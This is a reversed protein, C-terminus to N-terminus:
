KAWANKLSVNRHGNTSNFYNKKKSATPLAPFSEQHSEMHSLAQPIFTDCDPNEIIPEIKPNPNQKSKWQNKSTYDASSESRSQQSIINNNHVLLLEQQKDEDPLLAVLESFVNKINDGLLHSIERYYKEPTILGRRFDGSLDKFIGLNFDDLYMKLMALLNLNREKKIENSDIPSKISLGPPMSKPEVINKPVDLGPPNRRSTNITSKLVNNSVQKSECLGPPCKKKLNNLNETKVTKLSKKQNQTELLPTLDVTLTSLSPFDENIANVEDKQKSWKGVSKKKSKVTKVLLSAHPATFKSASVVENNLKITSALAPFAEDHKEKLSKALQFPVHSSGPLSPFDSEARLSNNEISSDSYKEIKEKVIPTPEVFDKASNTQSTEVLQKNIHESMGIVGDNDQYHDRHKINNESSLISRNELSQINEKQNTRVDLKRREKVVYDYDKGNIEFSNSSNFSSATNQLLNPAGMRTKKNEVPNIDEYDAANVLNSQPQRREYRIDIEVKRAEKAELKNMKKVHQALKHAQFDIKDRFVSTYKENVCNGDECLYHKNAFHQRLDDYVDYYDQRGDHECFHCWFHNKRLHFLLLDNDFYRESCFRCEPHGRHSKEDEDGEKRHKVLDKKSYIKLEHPFVTLNEVCIDCMQKEHVKRLHSKLEHLTLFINNKNNCLVCINAILHQFESQILKDEFRIGYKRNGPLNHLSFSSFKKISKCFVVQSMDARCTSCYIQKSLVRMRASCKYCVPHDCPGIAVFKINECCVTCLNDEIVTDVLESNDPSTINIDSSM